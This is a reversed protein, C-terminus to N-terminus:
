FIMDIGLTFATGPMPFGYVEEYDRNFINEVGFRITGDFGERDWVPYSVNADMTVFGGMNEISSAGPTTLDGVVTGRKGVYRLALDAKLGNLGRYRVGVNAKEDPLEVLKDTDSEDLIDGDKKTAQWTYNAFVSLQESFSYEGELEIGSITM